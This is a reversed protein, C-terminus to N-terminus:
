QYSKTSRRIAVTDQGAPIIAFNAAKLQDMCAAQQADPLNEAEFILLKTNLASFDFQSLIHYDYGEADIVVIEPDNIASDALLQSVTICPVDITRIYKEVEPIQDSLRLLQTPSLTGVGNAWRPLTGSSCDLNFMQMQGPKEAIACQLFELGKFGRYTRKLQEFYYPQPEVFTGRLGHRFIALNLPDSLYGDNAGIQVFTTAGDITIIDDVFQEVERLRYSGLGYMLRRVVSKQRPSFTRAAIDRISM